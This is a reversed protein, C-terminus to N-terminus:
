TATPLKSAVFTQQVDYRDGTDLDVLLRIEFDAYYEQGWHYAGAGEPTAHTTLYYVPTGLLNREILVYRDLKPKDHDTEGAVHDADIEEAALIRTLAEFREEDVYM